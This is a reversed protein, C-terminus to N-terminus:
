SYVPPLTGNAMGGHTSMLDETAESAKRVSTKANLCSWGKRLAAKTMVFLSDIMNEEITPKSSRNPREEM